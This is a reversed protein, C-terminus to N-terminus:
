KGEQDKKNRKSVINNIREKIREENEDSARGMRKLANYTSVGPVFLSWATSGKDHKIQEEKTRRRKIGAAIAGIINSLAAAGLGISGGASSSANVDKNMLKGALAGLARGALNSAAFSTAIGINEAAAHSKPDAGKNKENSLVDAMENIIQERRAAHSGYPGYIVSDELAGGACKVHLRHACEALARPDIGYAAAQKCFGNVYSQKSM